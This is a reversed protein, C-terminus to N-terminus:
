NELLVVDLVFFLLLEGFINEIIWKGCKVFLICLFNSMVMLISVYM